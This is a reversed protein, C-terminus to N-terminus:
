PPDHHLFTQVFLLVVRKMELDRLGRGEKLELGWFVPLVFYGGMGWGLKM